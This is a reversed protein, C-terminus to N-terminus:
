ASTHRGAKRVVIEGGMEEWELVSGPGLGLRKRVEAPVSVQGQMTLKSQAIAMFSLMAVTTPAGDFTPM